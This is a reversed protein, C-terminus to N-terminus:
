LKQLVQSVDTLGSRVIDVGQIITTQPLAADTTEEFRSGHVTVTPMTPVEVALCSASALTLLLAILGSSSPLAARVQHADVLFNALLLSPWPLCHSHKMYTDKAYAWRM